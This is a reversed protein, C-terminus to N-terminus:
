LRLIIIILYVIMFTFTIDGNIIRKLKKAVIRNYIENQNATTQSM